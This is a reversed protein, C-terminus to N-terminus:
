KDLWPTRPDNTTPDTPDPMSDIDICVIGDNKDLIFGVGAVTTKNANYLALAKDYTMQNSKDAWKAYGIARKYIRVPRKEPKQDQSDEPVVLSWIVWNPLEKLSDPIGSPKLTIKPLRIQNPSIM